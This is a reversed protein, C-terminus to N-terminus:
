LPAARVLDSDSSLPLAGAEGCPSDYCVSELYLGEPPAVPGCESRNRAELANRVDEPHWAGAGVRELTGVISRVQHQLFSRAQALIEVRSGEHIVDLRDLTRVPSDAQCDAARFTTFDHRGVLAAAAARMADADLNRGRRWVLGREIALPARRMAIRYRYRREVADFRAHFDDAVREARLVAASGKLLQSNIADALRGGEWDRDLDFHAVQGRAHVGSDTRGAGTVRPSEQCVTAIADELAQQVTSGTSQRQWGFFFGGHYEVLIRYRPM